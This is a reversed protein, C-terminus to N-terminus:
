ATTESTRAVVSDFSKQFAQESFRSLTTQGSLVNARYRDPDAMYTAIIGDVDQPDAGIAGDGFPGATQPDTIVLKGAAIAEAIVRGFSERWTRATFYVFFDIQDFFHDVPIQGFRYLNWHAPLDDRRMLNDAGLITNSEASPPFCLHLVERRPFKEHGPRSHRGRRNGPAVTPEAMRMSCINFWDNELVCWGSAAQSHRRWEEVTDRNYASVPALSRRLVLANRKIQSLCKDVDFALAGGPRLFNEHTVVILHRAIIRTPLDDQFKLCSPNHFIVVDAAVEKMDWNLPLGLRLLADKLQTAVHREAFMATDLAFVRVHAVRSVVELEAAVASSTGGPFRPDIIYAVDLDDYKKQAM